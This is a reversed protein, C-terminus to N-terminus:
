KTIDDVSTVVADPAARANAWALKGRRRLANEWLKVVVIWALAAGISIGLLIWLGSM